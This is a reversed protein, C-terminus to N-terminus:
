LLYMHITPIGESPTHRHTTVKHTNQTSHMAEKEENDEAPNVGDHLQQVKMLILVPIETGADHQHECCKVAACVSVWIKYVPSPTFGSSKEAAEAQEM